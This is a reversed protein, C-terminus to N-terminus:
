QGNRRMRGVVRLRASVTAAADETGSGRQRRLDLDEIFLYPTAAEIGHLLAGLETADLTIEAIVGVEERDAAAEEIRLSELAGGAEAAAEDIVAQVASAALARTPADILAPDAVEIREREAAAGRAQDFRDLREELGAIEADLAAFRDYIPLVVGFVLLGVCILLLALAALRSLGQGPLGSLGGSVLPSM